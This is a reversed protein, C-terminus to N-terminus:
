DGAPKKRILRAVGGQSAPQHHQAGKFSGLTVRVRGSKRNVQTIGRGELDLGPRTGTGWLAKAGAASCCDFGSPFTRTTPSPFAASLPEWFTQPPAARFPSVRGKRAKPFPCHVLGILPHQGPCARKGLWFSPLSSHPAAHSARLLRGRAGCQRHAASYHPPAGAQPDQRLPGSTVTACGRRIKGTPVPFQSKSRQTTIPPIPSPATLPLKQSGLTDPM